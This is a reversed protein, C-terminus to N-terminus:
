SVLGNCPRTDYITCNETDSMSVDISYIYTGNYIASDIQMCRIQGFKNSYDIINQIIDLIM